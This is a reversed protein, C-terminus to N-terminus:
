IRIHSSHTAIFIRLTKQKIFSLPSKTTIKLKKDIHLDNILKQGTPKILTFFPLDCTMSAGFPIKGQSSWDQSRLWQIWTFWCSNKTFNALVLWNFTELWSWFALVRFNLFNGLSLDFLYSDGTGPLM